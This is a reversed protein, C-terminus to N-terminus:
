DIYRCRMKDYEILEMLKTNSLIDETTTCNYYNVSNLKNVIEILSSNAFFGTEIHKETEEVPRYIADVTSSKLLYGDECVTIGRYLHDPYGGM